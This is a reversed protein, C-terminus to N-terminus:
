QSDDPPPHDSRHPLFDPQCTTGGAPTYLLQLNEHVTYGLRLQQWIKVALSHLGQYILKTCGYFPFHILGEWGFQLSSSLCCGVEIDRSVTKCNSFHHLVSPM